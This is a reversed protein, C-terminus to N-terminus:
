ESKYMKDRWVAFVDKGKHWFPIPEIQPFKWSKNCTGIVIGPQWDPSKTYGPNLDCLCFGEFGAFLGNRTTKYSTGGRHTHGTLTTISYAEKELEGKATYGSNKRVLSGHKIVIQGAIVIENNKAMRIGLDSLGFFNKFKLAELGWIEPHRKQYKILRDEHNGKIYYFSANPAADNWERQAAQWVNKEMDLNNIIARKPDKDFKSLSYFDMGDSGATMIHPDHDQVIQRAVSGARPDSYPHHEDCPNAFRIDDEM